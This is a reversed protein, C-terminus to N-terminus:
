SGFKNLKKRFDKADGNYLHLNKLAIQYIKGADEEKKFTGLHVKKTKTRIHTVWGYKSFSVGVFRSTKNKIDKSTNERSTIIQLNKVNNNLKNNDIHDVVMKKGNPVHGLFAMAVLVHIRITKQGMEGQLSICPYNSFQTKLVLGSELNRVRGLSSIEYRTFNPIAKWIEKEM